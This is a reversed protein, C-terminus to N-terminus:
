DLKIQLWSADVEAVEECSDFVAQDVQVEEDLVTCELVVDEVEADAKETEGCILQVIAQM